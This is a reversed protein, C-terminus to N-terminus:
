PVGRNFLAFDRRPKSRPTPSIEIVASHEPGFPHLLIRDKDVVIVKLQQRLVPRNGTQEKEKKQSRVQMVSPFIKLSEPWLADGDGGVKEAVAEGKIEPGESRHRGVHHM